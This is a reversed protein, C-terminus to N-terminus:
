SKQFAAQLDDAILRDFAKIKARMPWMLIALL